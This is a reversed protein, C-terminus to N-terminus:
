IANVESKYIKILEKFSLLIKKNATHLWAKRDILNDKVEQALGNEEIFNKIALVASGANKFQANNLTDFNISNDLAIVEIKFKEENVLKQLDDFSDIWSKDKALEFVNEYPKSILFDKFTLDTNLSLFNNVFRLTLNATQFYYNGLVTLKPNLFNVQYKKANKNKM